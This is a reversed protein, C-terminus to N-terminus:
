CFYRSFLWVLNSHLGVLPEYTIPGVLKKPPLRPFQLKHSPAGLFIYPIFQGPVYTTETFFLSFEDALKKNLVSNRVRGVAQRQHDSYGVTKIALPYFQRDNSTIVIGWLRLPKPTFITNKVTLIYTPIKAVPETVWVRARTITLVYIANRSCTRYISSARANDASLVHVVCDHVVCFMCVDAKFIYFM